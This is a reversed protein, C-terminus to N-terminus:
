QAAVGDLKAQYLIVQKITEYPLTASLERGNIVLTPTENINLDTALKTSAEIVAATAPTSACASIKAPDLGVKAVAANLTLTVGDESVLGAQGDFVAAAYNFFADSGAEKAVCVGYAAAPMSGKWQANGLPRNLFVFRAKPFDAALKEMNAQAEKCHPCEFDAFEVIELDKSASGRYPGDARLRILDRYEKFPNEGFPLITLRGFKDLTVLHKGDAVTYFSTEIPKQTESKDNVLITVKSIGEVPTKEIAWVEWVRTDDYGWSVKLFTEITEKSPLTATFNSPSPKPMAFPKAATTAETSKPIASTAATDAPVPQPAPQDKSAAIPLMTMGNKGTVIFHQGDPMGLFQIGFPKQTESKDNVLVTVLSVGEVSTKEIAWIEWIRNEDSGLNTKLFADVAEKTPLAATFNAPEPKPMPNLKAAPVPAAPSMANPASPLDQQAAAQLVPLSFAVLALASTFRISPRIM